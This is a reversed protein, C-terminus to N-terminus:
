RHWADALRGCLLPALWGSSRRALGLTGRRISCRTTAPTLSQAKSALEPEDVRDGGGQGSRTPLAAPRVGDCGALGHGSPSVSSRRSSRESSRRGARRLCLPRAARRRRRASSSRKGAAAASRASAAGSRSSKVPKGLLVPALESRVIRELPQVLLVASRRVDDADEGGAGRDDAQDARYEGLLM